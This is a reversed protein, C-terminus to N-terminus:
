IAVPTEQLGHGGVLDYLPTTLYREGSSAAFTVITKGEFEKREAVRIAAAVNAGSSIGALIGEERALRRAWHMAEDSTVTIVDNLLETDLNAPVFGAGLGQIRHPGPVGGSLVASEAPEVAISVLKPNKTRLF